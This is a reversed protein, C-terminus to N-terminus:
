KGMHFQCAANADFDNDIIFALDLGFIPETFKLVGDKISYTSTYSAEDPWERKWSEIDTVGYQNYVDTYGNQRDFVWQLSTVNLTVKDGDVTYTGNRQEIWAPMVMSYTGDSRFSIHVVVAELPIDSDKNINPDRNTSWEGVLSTEQPQDQQPDDEKECSNFAICAMLGTLLFLFQKKMIIKNKNNIFHNYQKQLKIKCIYANKKFYLM